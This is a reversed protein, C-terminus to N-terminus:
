QMKLLPAIAAVWRAYANAVPVQERKTAAQKMMKLSVGLFVLACGLAEPQTAVCASVSSIAVELKTMRRRDACSARSDVLLKLLHKRANEAKTVQAPESM